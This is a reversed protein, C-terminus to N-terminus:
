RLAASALARCRDRPAGPGVVVWTPIERATAALVSDAPLRATGDLVIRVPFREEMGPLRCTLAPDDALATGIGSWSETM